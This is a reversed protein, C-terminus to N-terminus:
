AKDFLLADPNAGTALFGTQRPHAPDTADILYLGADRESAIYVKHGDRLAAVSLPFVSTGPVAGPLEVRGVEKGSKADYIAVSANVGTAAVDEEPDENSEALPQPAPHTAPTKSAISTPDNNTVYLYGRGDLALGAPFDSAHTAITRKKELTGDAGLALVAVSDRNGQAAYVTGDPAIALGYYLGNNRDFKSTPFEVHSVGKGDETRISWLAQKFGADTVIVYKGDPSAAMNVPLSGVPQTTPPAQADLARGTVLPVTQPSTELPKSECGIFIFGASAALAATILHRVHSRISQSAM